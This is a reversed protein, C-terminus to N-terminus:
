HHRLSSSINTCKDQFIHLHVIWKCPTRHLSLFSPYTFSLLMLIKFLMYLISLWYSSATYNLSSLCPNQSLRSPHPSSPSSLTAQSPPSIPTGIASEQHIVSFLLIRYLLYREILFFLLTTLFFFLSLSLSCLMM